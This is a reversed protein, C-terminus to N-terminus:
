ANKLRGVVSSIGESSHGARVSRPSTGFCRRFARAFAVESQYGYRAALSAVPESSECLEQRALHLRLETLYAMVPKGVLESFRAAFASRSMGAVKALTAVQWSREPEQHMLMMARGLQPDCLGALYGREEPGTSALWARVAHIVLVDALRTIVTESGPRLATAERAVFRITSRLWGDDDEDRPRVEIVRPLLAILREAAAHEFRV